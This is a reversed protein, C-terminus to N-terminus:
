EGALRLKAATAAVYSDAVPVGLGYAFERLVDEVTPDHHRKTSANTWECSDDYMYYVTGNLGIGVVEFPEDSGDPWELVDGIRVPKGDADKPLETYRETLERAPMTVFETGYLVANTLKRTLAADHEADIRDAIEMLTQYSRNLTLKYGRAYKRLEDTISM